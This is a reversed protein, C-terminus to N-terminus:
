EQMQGIRVWAGHTAYEVRVPELEVKLEGGANMWTRNHPMSCSAEARAVGGAPLSGRWEFDVPPGAPRREDGERREFRCEVLVSQVEQRTISRITLTVRATDADISIHADDLRVPCGPEYVTGVVVPGATTSWMCSSALVALFLASIAGVKM